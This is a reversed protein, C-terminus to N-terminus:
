VIVQTLWGVRPVTFVDKVEEHNIKLAYPWPIQGVFVRVLYGTVVPM